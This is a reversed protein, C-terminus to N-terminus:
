IGLEIRDELAALVEAVTGHVDEVVNAMEPVKTWAALLTELEGDHAADVFSAAAEKIAAISGLARVATDLTSITSMMETFGRAGAQAQAIAAAADTGGTPATFKYAAGLPTADDTEGDVLDGEDDPDVDAPRGGPRSPGGARADAPIDEGTGPEDGDGAGAVAGDGAGAVAGDGTGGPDADGGPRPNVVGQEALLTDIVSQTQEASPMDLGAEAAAAHSHEGVAAAFERDLHWDKGAPLARLVRAPFDLETAKVGTAEAIGHMMAVWRALRNVSADSLPRGTTPNLLTDREGRVMLDPSAYGMPEWGRGAVFESLAADLTQLHQEILAYSQVATTWLRRAAVETLAAAAGDPVVGAADVTEADLAGLAPEEAAALARVVSDSDAKRDFNDVDFPAPAGMEGAMQM